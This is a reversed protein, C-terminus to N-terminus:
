SCVIYEGGLMVAYPKIQNVTTVTEGYADELVLQEKEVTFFTLDAVTGKDLTGFEPKHLIAAPIETVKKIVDVLSYGLALFKNLTTAMDYVPGNLRNKEYIDTSISHFPLQHNKAQKAIQFSFSSTGHGVDLYVGRRLAHYVSPHIKQQHNFITNGEKAHFCHTIVDGKELLDLIDTIKPPASGIHVMLPKQLLDGYKRALKLPELGNEGVVSKSMRVKLGVLLEPYAQFSYKIKEWSINTLDVLEDSVKLGTQAINLFSFVRTKSGKAVAYLHEINDAGCTGADIVTTVGTKYGIKDPHSCYPELCPYAHTHLDIWGPSVYVGEPVSIVEGKRFSRETVSQIYGDMIQINCKRNNLLSVGNINLM